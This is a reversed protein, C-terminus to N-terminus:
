SGFVVASRYMVKIREFISQRSGSSRISLPSWNESSKELIDRNKLMGSLCQRLSVYSASHTVVLSNSETSFHFLMAVKWLRILNSESFYWSFSWIILSDTICHCSIGRWWITRLKLMLSCWRYRSSLRTIAISPTVERLSIKKSMSCVEVEYRDNAPEYEVLSSSRNWTEWSTTKM